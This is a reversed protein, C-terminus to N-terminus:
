VANVKNVFARFSKLTPLYRMLPFGIVYLVVLEGLGVWAGNILFLGFHRFLNMGEYAGTIVAGVIVANFIVPMFCALLQGSLYSRADLSTVAPDALARRARRGFYATILGAGLTALSGFFIDFINGTILNALFCGVFLGWATGPFFYPLICLAESVRLQVAAYSIPALAITLVAYAAGTVAAVALSRIPFIRKDM